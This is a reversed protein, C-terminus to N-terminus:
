FILYFIFAIGIALFAVIIINIVMKRKLTGM